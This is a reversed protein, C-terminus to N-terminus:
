PAVPIWVENRRLFWLAYPSNYRAFEAEGLPRLGAKKIGTDLIAKEEEYRTMSWSGSYQRVAVRRAPVSKLSVRPDDPVPLNELHYSKPMTFQVRYSGSGGAVVQVPATMAIKQPDAAPTVVVPATMEIKKSITAEGDIARQHNKGFIYGALLRFGQNSAEEQDGKITVEAITLPQYERVEFTDYDKIVTYEPEEIAMAVESLISWFFFLFIM